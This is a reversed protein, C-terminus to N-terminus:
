IVGGTRLTNFDSVTLQKFHRKDFNVQKTLGRTVLMPMALNREQSRKRTCYLPYKARQGFTFNSYAPCM